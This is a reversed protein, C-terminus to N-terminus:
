RPSCRVLLRKGKAPPHGPRGTSGCNLFRALRLGLRSMVVVAARLEGDAEAIMVEIEEASPVELKRTAKSPPRERTGRFPNKVEDHHREIWAMFASAGAVRLRVMSPSDRMSNTWDDATSPTLELITIGKSDCWTTLKDLATGYARQTQKSKLRAMFRAREEDLDIKELQAAHKLDDKLGEAVVVKALRELDDASLDSLEPAEKAIRKAVAKVKQAGEAEVRNILMGAM